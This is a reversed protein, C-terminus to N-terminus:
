VYSTSINKEEAPFLQLQAKFQSQLRLRMLKYGPASAVHFYQPKAACFLKINRSTHEAAAATSNYIPIAMNSDVQIKYEILGLM